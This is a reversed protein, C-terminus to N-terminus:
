GIMEDETAGEGGREELRNDVQLRSERWLNYFKRLDGHRPGHKEEELVELDQIKWKSREDM